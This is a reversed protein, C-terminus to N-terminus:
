HLYACIDQKHYSAITVLKKPTDVNIVKFLNSDGFYPNKTIKKHNRTAVCM